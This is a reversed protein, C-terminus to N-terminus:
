STAQLWPSSPKPLSIAKMQGNYFVYLTDVGQPATGEVTFAVDQAEACSVAMMATLAMSLIKKM